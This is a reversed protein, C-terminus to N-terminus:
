APFGVFAHESSAPQRREQGRTKSSSSSRPFFAAKKTEAICYVPRLKYLSMGFLWVTVKISESFNLFNLSMAPQLHGRTKKMKNIKLKCSAKLFGQTVITIVTITLPCPCASIQLDNSSFVLVTHFLLYDEQRVLGEQRSKGATNTPRIFSAVGM